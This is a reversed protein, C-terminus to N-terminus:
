SGIERKPRGPQRLPPLPLTFQKAFREAADKVGPVTRLPEWNSNDNVHCLINKYAVRLMSETYILGNRRFMNEDLGAKLIVERPCDEIRRGDLLVVGAAANWEVHISAENELRARQDGKAGAKKAAPSQPLLALPYHGRAWAVANHLRLGVYKFLSKYDEVKPYYAEGHTAIEQASPPIGSWKNPGLKEFDFSRFDDLWATRELFGQPLKGVREQLTRLGLPYSDKLAAAAACNGLSHGCEFWSRYPSSTHVGNFASLSFQCAAEFWRWIKPYNKKLKAIGGAVSGDYLSYRSILQAYDNRTRFLMAELTKLEAMLRQLIAFHNENIAGALHDLQVRLDELHEGCETPYVELMECYYGLDIATEIYDALDFADLGDGVEVGIGFARATDRAM